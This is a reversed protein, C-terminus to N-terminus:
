STLFSDPLSHTFSALLRVQVKRRLGHVGDWSQRLEQLAIPDSIM